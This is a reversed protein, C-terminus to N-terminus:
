ATWALQVPAPVPMGGQEMALCMALSLEYPIASVARTAQMRQDRTKAWPPRSLRDPSGNPGYRTGQVGTRSGRPPPAHDEAGNYCAKADFGPPFVGWLDTPKAYPRGYQCQWVTRRDLDDVFGISRLRAVPNEIVYYTPRLQDILRRTALVLSGGIRATESKPRGDMWHYRVSMMSFSTCPPSALIVDPSWPIDDPTLTAIDQYLSVGPFDTDLEVSFVDHGRESFARGWGLTGAFLELVRV